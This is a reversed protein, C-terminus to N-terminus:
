NNVIEANNYSVSTKGKHWQWTEWKLITSKTKFNVKDSMLIDVGARRQKTNANYVIDNLITNVFM